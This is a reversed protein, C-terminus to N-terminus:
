RQKQTHASTKWENRNKNTAKLLLVAGYKIAIYIDSPFDLYGDLFVSRNKSCTQIKSFRLHHDMKLVAIESDISGLM